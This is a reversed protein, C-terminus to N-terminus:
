ELDYTLYMYNSTNYKHLMGMDEMLYNVEQLWQVDMFDLDYRCVQDALQQTDHLEHTGQCFTVDKSAHLFKRPRYFYFKLHGKCM